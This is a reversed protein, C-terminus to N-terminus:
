WAWRSPKTPRTTAASSSSRGPASRAWRRALLASGYGGDFSAVDADTQKFRRARPERADHRVRRAPQAWRRRGLGAGGRHRGEAHLSHAAAGRPHAPARPAGPRGARAKTSTGTRRPHASRRGLLVGLRRGEALATAPSSCAAWTARCARTTSRATCSTWRARSPLRQAGGAPQLRHARARTWRATTPSTRSGALTIATVAKTDEDHWEVAGTAPSLGYLGGAFSAVWLVGDILVPTTDVDVFRPARAEDPEVDLSTEREWLVSGDIPSLAVVAGDTFAAVVRKDDVYLGAHGSVSMTEPADRGYRWLITGDNRDLAFVVDADTTVYVTGPVVVPLERVAGGLKQEWRKELSASDLAFFTGEESGVFVTTGADDLVPAGGVGGGIRVSAHRAGSGDLLLFEGYTTGLSFATALHTSSRRQTSWPCTRARSTGRYSRCGFSALRAL